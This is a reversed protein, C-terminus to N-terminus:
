GSCSRKGRLESASEGLVMEYERFWGEALNGTGPDVEYSKMAYVYGSMREDKSLQRNWCKLAKLAREFVKTSGKCFLVSGKWIYVVDYRVVNFERVSPAPSCVVEGDLDDM